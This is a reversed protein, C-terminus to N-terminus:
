RVLYLIFLPFKCCDGYTYKQGRPRLMQRTADAVSLRAISTRVVGEDLLTVSEPDYLDIVKSLKSVSSPLRDARHLSMARADQKRASSAMAQDSAHELTTKSMHHGLQESKGEHDLDIHDAAINTAQRTSECDINIISNHRSPLTTPTQLDTPRRRTMVDPSGPASHAGGRITLGRYRDRLRSNGTRLAGQDTRPIDEALHHQFCREVWNNEYRGRADRYTCTYRWRVTYPAEKEVENKNWFGLTDRYSGAPFLQNTVRLHRPICIDRLHVEIVGQDLYDRKDDLDIDFMWCVENLKKPLLGNLDRTRQLRHGRLKVENMGTNEVITKIRLFDGDRLEVVKGPKLTQGNARKISDLSKWPETVQPNRPPLQISPRRQSARRDREMAMRSQMEYLRDELDDLDIILDDKTLQKKTTTKPATVDSIEMSDDEDLDIIGGFVHEVEQATPKRGREFFSKRIDGALQCFDTGNGDITIFDWGDLRASRARKKSESTLDVHLRKKSKHSM